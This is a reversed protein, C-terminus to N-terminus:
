ANPVIAIYESTKAPTCIEM